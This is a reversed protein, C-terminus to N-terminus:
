PPFGNLNLHYLVKTNRSDERSSSLKTSTVKLAEWTSASRYTVHTPIHIHSAGGFHLYSAVIFAHDKDDRCTGQM